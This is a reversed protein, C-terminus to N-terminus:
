LADINQVINTILILSNIDTKINIDGNIMGLEQLNVLTLQIDTVATYLIKLFKM